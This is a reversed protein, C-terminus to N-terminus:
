VGYLWRHALSEWWRALVLAQPRSLGLRTLLAMVHLANLHHQLDQRMAHSRHGARPRTPPSPPLVLQRRHRM